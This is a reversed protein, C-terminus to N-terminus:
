LMTGATRGLVDEFKRLYGVQGLNNALGVGELGVLIPNVGVAIEFQNVQGNWFGSRSAPNNEKDLPVGYLEKGAVDM